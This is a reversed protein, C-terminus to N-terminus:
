RRVRCHENTSATIVRTPRSRSYYSTSESYDLTAKMLPFDTGAQGQRAPCSATVFSRRRGAVAFSRKLSLTLRSIRGYGYPFRYLQAGRRIKGHVRRMEPILLKTAYRGRGEEIRFPLVYIVETAGKTIVQGLIFPQGYELSYFATMSGEVPVEEKELLVESDVTGRGVVSGACSRRATMAPRYLRKIPCSKIGAAHFSLNRSLAFSIASLQPVGPPNLASSTFGLRLSAPAQWRRPRRRPLLEATATAKPLLHYTVVDTPASSEWTGRDFSFRVTAKVRLREGVDGHTVLYSAATAGSIPSCSLAVPGQYFGTEGCREWEYSVSNPSETWTGPSATLVKGPEAEGSISPPTVNSPVPTLLDGAAASQDAAVGAIFTWLLGILIAIQARWNSNTEERNMTVLLSFAQSLCAKASNGQM